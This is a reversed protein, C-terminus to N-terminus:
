LIICKYYYFTNQLIIAFYKEQCFLEEEYIRRSLLKTRRRLEKTRRNLKQVEKFYTLM